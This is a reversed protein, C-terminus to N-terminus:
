KFCNLVSEGMLSIGALSTHVGDYAWYTGTAQKEAKDFISQYPIFIAKYEKAIEKSVRQYDGFEPYWSDDVHQVGKVGFPEGIILKVNPLNKLTLDLMKQYQSKYEAASGNYNGNRKHWYDNVGILISLVNPKLDLCDKQWREILQPVKHGGIGRNYIQLNKSAHKHLLTRATHAAYGKGMADVDNSGLKDRSRGHDTISDGQFLIIDNKLLEIKHEKVAFSEAKALNTGLVTTGIAALSQKLFSRRDKM